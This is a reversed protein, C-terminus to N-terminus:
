AVPEVSRHLVALTIFIQNNKPRKLRRVLLERCGFLELLALIDFENIPELRAQLHNPFKFSKKQIFKEFAISINHNTM